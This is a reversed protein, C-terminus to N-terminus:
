ADGLLLQGFRLVGLGQTAQKAVMDFAEELPWPDEQVRHMAWTM